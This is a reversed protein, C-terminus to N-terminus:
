IVGTKAVGELEIDSKFRRIGKWLLTLGLLEGKLLPAGDVGILIYLTLHINGFCLFRFVYFVFLRNTKLKGAGRM